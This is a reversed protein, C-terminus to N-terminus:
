QASQQAETAIIRPPANMAAAPDGRVMTGTEESGFTHTRLTDIVYAEFELNKPVRVIRYLEM